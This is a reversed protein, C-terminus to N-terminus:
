LELQQKQEIKKIENYLHVARQYAYDNPDRMSKMNIEIARSILKKAKPLEGILFHATGYNLLMEALSDHDKGLHRETIRICEEYFFFAKDYEELQAYSNAMITMPSVLIHEGSNVALKKNLKLSKEFNVLADKLKNDYYDILGMDMYLSAIMHMVAPRQLHHCNNLLEHLLDMTIEAAKKKEHSPGLGAMHQGAECVSKMLEPWEELMRGTKEVTAQNIARRNQLNEYLALFTQNRLDIALQEDGPRGRHEVAHAYHHVANALIRHEKINNEGRGMKEKFKKMLTNQEEYYSDLTWQHLNEVTNTLQNALPAVSDPGGSVKRCIEKYASGFAKVRYHTHEGMLHLVQNYPKQRTMAPPDSNLADPPLIAVKESMEAKRSEYLLDFQEQDSYLKREAHNWWDALFQRAWRTNRVFVTGSNVLTTSGAHEASMLVHAQPHEAAIKELRMGMDLFILDADVWMLYDLDRAWGREPHLAEELIKIKNWRADYQDFKATSPDLHVMIYGNHEAYAENVALSYATYDWINETAYTVIGVGLTPGGNNRINSLIREMNNYASANTCQMLEVANDIHLCCKEVGLLQLNAPQNRVSTTIQASTFCLLGATAILWPLIMIGSRFM